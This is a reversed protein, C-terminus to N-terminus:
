IPANAFPDAEMEKEKQAKEIVKKSINKFQIEKEKKEIMRDVRKELHILLNEARIISKEWQAIMEDKRKHSLEELISELAKEGSGKEGKVERFSLFMM